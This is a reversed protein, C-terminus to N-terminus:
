QLPAPQADGLAFESSLNGGNAGTVPRDPWLRYVANGALINKLQDASEAWNQVRLGTSPPTEGKERAQLWSRVAGALDVPSTGSFYTAHAGAIERFM